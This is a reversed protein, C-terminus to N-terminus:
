LVLVLQIIILTYITAFGNRLTSTYKKENKYNDTTM